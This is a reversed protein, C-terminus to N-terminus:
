DDWPNQGCGIIIVSTLSLHSRKENEAETKKRGACFIIMKATAAATTPFLFFGFKRGGDDNRRLNYRERRHESSGDRVGHTSSPFHTKWTPDTPLTGQPWQFNLSVLYFTVCLSSSLKTDNKTRKMESNQSSLLKNFRAVLRGRRPYM